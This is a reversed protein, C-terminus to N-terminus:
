PRGGWEDSIITGAMGIVAMMGGVVAVKAGALFTSDWADSFLLSIGMLCVGTALVPFSALWIRDFIKTM